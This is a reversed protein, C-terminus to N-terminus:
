VLARWSTSRILRSLDRGALFVPRSLICASAAARRVPRWGFRRRQWRVCEGRLSGSGAGVQGARPACTPSALPPSRQDGPSPRATRRSALRVRAPHGHAVGYRASERACDIPRWHAGRNVKLLPRRSCLCTRRAAAPHLHAAARCPCQRRSFRNLHAASTARAM